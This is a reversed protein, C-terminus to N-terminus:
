GQNTSQYGTEKMVNENFEKLNNCIKMTIENYMEIPDDTVSDLLDSVRTLEAAVSRLLPALKKGDSRFLIHFNTGIKRLSLSLSLTM